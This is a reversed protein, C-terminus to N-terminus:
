VDYNDDTLTNIYTTSLYLCDIETLVEQQVLRNKDAHSDDELSKCDPQIENDKKSM